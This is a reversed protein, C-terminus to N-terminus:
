QYTQNNSIKVLLNWQDLLIFYYTYLIFFTRRKANYM